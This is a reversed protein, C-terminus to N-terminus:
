LGLHEGAGLAELFGLECFFLEEPKEPPLTRRSESALRNQLGPRPEDPQARVEALGARPRHPVVRRARFRKQALRGVLEVREKKRSGRAGPVHLVLRPTDLLECHTEAASRPRNPIAPLRLPSVVRPRALRSAVRRVSRRWHLRM